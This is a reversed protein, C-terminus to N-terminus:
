ECAVECRLEARIGFPLREDGLSVEPRAGGDLCIQPDPTISVMCPRTRDAGPADCWPLPALTAGDADVIHSVCNVQFGATEPDLDIAPDLCSAGLPVKFLDALWVLADGWEGCVSTVSTREPLFVNALRPAATATADGACADALQAAEVVPNGTAAVTTVVLDRPRAALGTLRDVLSAVDAIGANSRSVCGTHEGMTSPDAPTCTTGRAFCALDIARELDGQATVDALATASSLTCDDGDTIVVVMLAAYDRLFGANGVVSGDLARVAAGLPQSVPCTSAPLDLLCTLADALTGDFNAAVGGSALPRTSLFRDELGCRAGGQFAGGDGAGCGLVGSAGLDSTVVAVRTDPLGGEITELVNSLTAGLAALDPAQDAMSPSRDVVVLMDLAVTQWIPISRRDERGCVVDDRSPEPDHCASVLAASALLILQPCRPV